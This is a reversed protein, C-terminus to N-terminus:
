LSALAERTADAYAFPRQEGLRLAAEFARRSGERDGRGKLAMGLHYQYTASPAAKAARAAAEDLAVAKQLQDVAADQLNKKYLVWGLTDVFGAVNPNKQVVGQALRLAEDLNGKGTEAYLWALNNAAIISNPDQELAKRYNEAAADYNKRSDELMGILTYVTSNDPRIALIKQYEAIARDEQKLNTFMAGLASYAAIYGSDIELAKRFEAEAGQVNAQLGYVQGKFYHLAANNPYQGLLQDIRAHAKDIQNSKAYLTIIGNLAAFNTADVKLANDFAAIAEENKGEEIAVLALNNYVTPDNPWIKRAEEFDARAAPLNKLQLQATGRAIYSKEAIEALVQPSNERDPATKSVRNLLDTALSITSKQSNADGGFLMLQIQMLKAPLYDPYNKELEGAFARAQDVMGLSFNAQAMYYLGSRSNPEQRLVDKLDEIAAKLGDPQGGQARMRARLLLAARDHKDKKLAEDIQATAGQTDGRSLLIEALRYRGQLYDPSKALVENYIRIADDMRNVSSYFDALVVQSEPKEADLGALNKFEAEAKDLQKNVLYFSALVFRANRDTPGVQVAKQLEAEAEPLRNSQVLFKGYESHALPSNQDISIAKRFIEESKDRENTVIYFRALSLYSEVRQPNLEIAKNLEAFAKERDNRAFLISGMLIHGEIHNADRELVEKALREAEDVLEPRGKSAALFYNGLKIRAELHSKDHELTKQLETIMEPFRQLGEYARALGWHAPGSTEDIQLANRFELGAEQYKLDKLYAEGRKLHEAKSQEADACGSLSVVAALLLLLLFRSYRFGYCENTM